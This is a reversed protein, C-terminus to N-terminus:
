IHKLGDALTQLIKLHFRFAQAGAMGSASELNEDADYYSYLFQRQTSDLNAIASDWHEQIEGRPVNKWILLGVIVLLSLLHMMEEEEVRLSRKIASEASITFHLLLENSKKAFRFRKEADPTPWSRETLADYIAARIRYVLYTRLTAGQRSRFKALGEKLGEEAWAFIQKEDIQPAIEERVQTAITRVLPLYRAAEDM